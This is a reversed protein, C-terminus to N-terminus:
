SVFSLTDVLAIARLIAITAGVGIVAVILFAVFPNLSLNLDVRRM